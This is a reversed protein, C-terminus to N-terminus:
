RGNNRAKFEVATLLMEVATVREEPTGDLSKVLAEAFRRRLIGRTEPMVTDHNMYGISATGLEIALKQQNVEADVSADSRLGPRPASHRAPRRRELM